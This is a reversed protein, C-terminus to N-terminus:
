TDDIDVLTLILPGHGLCFPIWKLLVLEYNIAVRNKREHIISINKVLDRINGVTFITIIGIM